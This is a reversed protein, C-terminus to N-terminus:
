GYIAEVVPPQRVLKPIARQWLVYDIFHNVIVLDRHQAACWRTVHLGSTSNCQGPEETGIESDCIGSKGVGSFM